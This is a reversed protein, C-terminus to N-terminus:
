ARRVKTFDPGNREMSGRAKGALWDRAIKVKGIGNVCHKIGHAKLWRSQRSPQHYGTLEIVEDDSLIPTDSM